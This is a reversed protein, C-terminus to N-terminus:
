VALSILLSWFSVSVVTVSDLEKGGGLERVCQFVHASVSCKQEM